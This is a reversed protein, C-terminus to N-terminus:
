DLSTFNFSKVFYECILPDFQTGKYKDIEKLAELYSRKSRYPRSSTMADFADAVCLIRSLLPIRNKKLKDPYGKGDWREHHHLIIDGVEELFKVQSVIKKGVSPHLQIEEFEEKSLSSPKNLIYRDIVIKGIDHLFGAYKLLEIKDRPIDMEIGIKLAFEVVRESHGWTYRDKAEISKIFAEITGLYTKKLDDYSKANAFAISAQNGISKLLSLDELSYIDGSKKKGLTLIGIMQNGFLLPIVLDAELREIQKIVHAVGPDEDKEVLKEKVAVRKEKRLWYILKNRNYLKVKRIYNEFGVYAKVQYTNKQGNQFLLCIKKVKMIQSIEKVITGMLDRLDLITILSQSLNNLAKISEYKERFFVKDIIRELKNRIPLFTIAIVFGAVIRSLLSYYGIFKQFVNEFLFITAIYVGIVFILMFTYITSRKIVVDIGMLHHRVIAFATLGVFFLTGCTDLLAFQPYGFMPLLFSMLFAFIGFGLVGLFIYIAQLRQIGKFKRICNFMRFLLFIIVSFLYGSYLLFLSTYSNTVPGTSKKIFFIGDIFCLSFFILGISYLISFLKFSVKRQLSFSICLVLGSSVTLTGLAYAM